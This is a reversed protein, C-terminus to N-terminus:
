AATTVDPLCQPQPRSRLYARRLLRPALRSAVTVCRVKWSGLGTTKAFHARAANLDGAKLAQKGLELDLQMGLRVLRQHVFGLESTDLRLKRPIGELVAIARKLEAETDGSLNRARVTRWVLSDPNAVMVIGQHAMRLWMDWDQGRQIRADFGRVVEIAGRRAVVSSTLVTCTQQVLARFSPPEVSGTTEFYRRGYLATAGRIWGDSWVFDCAPQRELFGIQRELFEPLWEDDADLFAIYRGRALTLARNRAAGAGANAQRHLRIRSRWPAIAADLEAPDRSGDDILVVEHDTWTQTFVSNLAHAICDAANYAPIVVSVAPWGELLTAM